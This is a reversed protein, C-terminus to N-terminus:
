GCARTPSKLLCWVHIVYLEKVSDSGYPYKSLDLVQDAARCLNALSCSLSVAVFGSQIEVSWSQITAM